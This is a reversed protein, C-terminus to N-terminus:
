HGTGLWPDQSHLTLLHALGASGLTGWETQSPPIPGPEPGPSSEWEKVFTDVLDKGYETDIREPM